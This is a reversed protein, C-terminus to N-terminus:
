FTHSTCLSQLKFFAILLNGKLPLKEIFCGHPLNPGQPVGYHEVHKIEVCLLTLSCTRFAM